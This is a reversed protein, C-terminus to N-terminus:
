IRRLVHDIIRSSPSNAISIPERKYADPNALFNEILNKDFKTLVCSGGNLGEVRETTDRLILCPKGLYACEEQNSGGDSIVFYAGHIMRIFSTFPQRPLLVVGANILREKAHNDTELKQEAPPHQVFYVPYLKAANCLTDVIAEWRIASNLNEFRHLNAVVYPKQPVPQEPFYREVDCLADYLTNIETSVIKGKIKGRKLNEYATNDQPFHMNAIRSVMRRTIEEPFPKLLTDSRLGAEIHGIIGVDLRRAVVAGVLTSLTDGHVLVAVKKLEIVGLEKELCNRINSVSSTIARVFWALAQRSTKLDQITELMTIVKQSPLRFDNWQKWFNVPSQGTFVFRWTAEVEELQVLIPYLKILEGATGACLLVPQSNKNINNM